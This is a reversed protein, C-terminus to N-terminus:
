GVGLGLKWGVVLTWGGAVATPEVTAQGNLRKKYDFWVHGDVDEQAFHRYTGRNGNKGRRGIGGLGIRPYEGGFVPWQEKYHMVTKSFGPHLLIFSGDERTLLFDWNPLHSPPPGGAVATTGWAPTKNSHRNHDYLPTQTSCCSVIGRSRGQVGNVVLKMSDDTLQTVM